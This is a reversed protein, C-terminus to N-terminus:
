NQHQEQADQRHHLTPPRAARPHRPARRPPPPPARQRSLRTLWDTTDARKRGPSMLRLHPAAGDRAYDPLDRTPTRWGAGGAGGPPSRNAASSPSLPSRAALPTRPSPAGSAAREYDKTPTTYSAGARPALAPWDADGCPRKGPSGPSSLRRKCGAALLAPSPPPSVPPPSARARKGAPEDDRAANMMDVLCRKTATPRREPRAAPPRPSRPRSAPTDARRRKLSHPTADRAARPPPPAPLARGALLVREDEPLEEPGVRWLLHRADDGCTVLALGRGWAACTVEARHGALRAVCAGSAAGWVYALKDSSGSVLYRGDGSLAAKIYFSGSEHGVYRREPLASYTAVNFCYVVGDMCSAFLRVGRALLASYGRRASSGCYPIAHRPLPSRTHASYHKRLDWVKINGDCEGASVLTHADQFALATVSAARPPELRPRKGHSAPRPAPPAHCGALRQDPRPARVDWVLVAGDRAGTAFVAGDDPRFVATKVSRSHAAFVAARRPAGGALDWLAATHDGSVTVFGLAGPRWALDFVANNHCQFSDLSSGSGVHETNQVAVRGDENALALLHEFGGCEAFRCAFIPPDQEGAGAGAAEGSQLGYYYFSEEPRVMLRRVVSDYNWGRCIGLQRDIFVQVDNM